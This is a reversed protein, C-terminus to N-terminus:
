IKEALMKKNIQGLLGQLSYIKHEATEAHLHNKLYLYFQTCTLALTFLRVNCINNTVETVM